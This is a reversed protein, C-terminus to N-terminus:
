TQHCCAIQASSPVFDIQSLKHWVFTHLLSWFAVTGGARSEAVTHITASRLSDGYVPIGGRPGTHASSIGHTFLVLRGELAAASMAAQDAASLLCISIFTICGLQDHTIAGRRM